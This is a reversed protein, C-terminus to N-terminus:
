PAYSCCPCEGSGLSGTPAAAPDFAASAAPGYAGSTDPSARSEEDSVYIAARIMGMWCSYGITGTRTPMFEVLNDGVKLRKEIGLEPVVLANNCGNLIGPAVRIIWKVPIGRKVAFSPYSSPGIETVVTQTEEDGTSASALPAAAPANPSSALSPITAGGLAFARGGAALGMALVLVGGAKSAAPLAKRPLVSTIFGIGMMAPVTGLAFALMSIAGPIAGGTGLAFLQMSQLPGCPMFGNLLGIVFSSGSKGRAGDAMASAKSALRALASPLPIKPLRLIGLSRLAFAVMFLAAFAMIGARFASSFSLAAGASGAIAGIATYSVVRGANYAAAPLLTAKGERGSAGAVARSLSIGGCMGVCHMSTLLGTVFLTALGAGSGVEPIGSLAGSADAAFYAVSLAAGAGLGALSAISLGERVEYGEGVIAARLADPKAAASDYEALVTGARFDAHAARVGKIAKLADEIRRECSACSMGGVRLRIGEFGMSNVEATYYGPAM